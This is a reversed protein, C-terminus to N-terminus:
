MSSSVANIYPITSIELKEESTQPADASSLSLGPDMPTSVPNCDLMSFTSLTNVIYQCQFLSLSHLPCNRTIEISM